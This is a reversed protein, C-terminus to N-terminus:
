KCGKTICHSAASESYISQVHIAKASTTAEGDASYM